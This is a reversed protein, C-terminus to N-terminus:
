LLEEAPAGNIVITVEGGSGDKLTTTDTRFANRIVYSQGTDCEFIVTADKLDRLDDLSMGAELSTTCNVVSPVLEESRGIKSGTVVTNNKIGGVDLSAGPATEITKGNASIKARGLFQTM